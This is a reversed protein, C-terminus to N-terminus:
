YKKGHIKLLSFKGVNSILMAAMVGAEIPDTVVLDCVKTVSGAMNLAIVPIGYDSRLKKVANTIKGGMLAGALVLIGVRHLKGVAEITNAIEAEGVVAITDVSITEGRINHRDAETIAGTAVSAVQAGGGIIIIRKGWTKKNTPTQEASEIEPIEKLTKIIDEPNCPNDTQFTIHCKGDYETWAQFFSFSIEKEAMKTSVQAILTLKNKSIIEFAAGSGEETYSQTFEEVASHLKFRKYREKLKKPIIMIISIKRLIGM